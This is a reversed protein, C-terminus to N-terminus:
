DENVTDDDDTVPTRSLIHQAVPVETELHIDGRAITLRLAVSEIQM